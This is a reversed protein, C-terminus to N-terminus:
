LCLRSRHRCPWADRSNPEPRLARSRAQRQSNQRATFRQLEVKGGLAEFHKKLLEQQQEMGKTGSMRPGIKCIQELYSMARKGDFRVPEAPARDAAFGETATATFAPAEARTSSTMFMKYGGLALFAAAVLLIGFTWRPM